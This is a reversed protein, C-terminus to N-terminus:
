PPDFVRVVKMNKPNTLLTRSRLNVLQAAASAAQRSGAPVRRRLRFWFRSPAAPTRPLFKYRPGPFSGRGRLLLLEFNAFASPIVLSGMFGCVRLATEENPANLRSSHREAERHFCNVKQISRRAERSARSRTSLQLARDSRRLHGSRKSRV